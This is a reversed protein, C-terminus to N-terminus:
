PALIPFSHGEPEGAAPVSVHMQMFVWGGAREELVATLRVPFAYDHDEVIAKVMGDAALWAVAGAQSVTHWHWTFAAAESQAFDRELQIRLQDPGRREEDAGTGVFVIDADSSFLALVGAVDRRQFTASFTRLYTLVAAETAADAQM